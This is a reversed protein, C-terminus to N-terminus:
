SGSPQSGGGGGAGAGAGSGGAAGEAPDSCSLKELAAPLEATTTGAHEGLIDPMANRRGTRGTAVFEATADVRGPPAEGGEGGGGGGGGGGGEEQQGSEMMVTGLM